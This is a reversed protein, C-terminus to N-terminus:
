KRKRLTIWFPILTIGYVILMIIARGYWHTLMTLGRYATTIACRASRWVM